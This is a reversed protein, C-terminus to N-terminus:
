RKPGIVPMPLVSIFVVSVQTSPCTRAVITENAICAKPNFCIYKISYLSQTSESWKVTLAVNGSPAVWASRGIGSGVGDHVPGGASRCSM